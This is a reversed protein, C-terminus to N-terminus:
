RDGDAAGGELNVVLEVTHRGDADFVRLEDVMNEILYLGWGRPKQLGELKAALDPAEPAAAPRSLGRDAIRVRLEGGTGEVDIEVPLEPRSQNGHEIANMTAESVATRLQELRQPALDLPAVAEGVLRMAERENGPRSEVRFSARLGDGAVARLSPSTRRLTVITIDDEQEWGSGTFRGLSTLIGDILDTRDGAVQDGLRKTGFMERSPDHAETIGDSYLLLADGPGLAAEVEEYAMGPLLGLPMGTARLEVVGDSTRAFPLNHGANAFRIRGSEPNVVAYLCTVFMRDPIDPVLLDNVRALVDGPSVIRTGSARLVSRAAAMVMAAPVGKDTVDGIVVAIEGSDLEFFDYFDGGVERAPKYYAQVQWGRLEPLQRPLFNQQILQAVRLEQEIRERSAAEAAQKRVLEAVQLAPAAQAALADLLKKDDTSYQQDSLRAGLNLTGILEGGSILPVVLAVGAERLARVAPSDLELRDVEVAGSAGQLFAILPDNPAIEVAPSSPQEAVEDAPAREAVTVADDRGGRLIARRMTQAFTSM